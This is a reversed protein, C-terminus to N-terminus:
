VDCSSLAPCVPAIVDGSVLPLGINSAIRLQAQLGLAPGGKRHPAAWGPKIVGPEIPGIAPNVGLIGVVGKNIFHDGYRLLEIGCHLAIISLNILSATLCWAL